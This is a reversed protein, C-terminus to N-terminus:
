PRHDEEIHVVELGPMRRQMEDAVFFRHCRHTSSHRTAYSCACFIVVARHERLYGELTEFGTDPDVYVPPSVRKGTAERHTNGLARLHYFTKVGPKLAQVAQEVGGGTFYPAFPSYPHSRIDVVVAEEPLSAYFEEPSLRRDTLADRYGVTYLKM